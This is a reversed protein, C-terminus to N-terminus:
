ILGKNKASQKIRGIMHGPLSSVNYMAWQEINNDIIFKYLYESFAEHQKDKKLERVENNSAELKKAFIRAARTEDKTTQFDVLKLRAHNYNGRPLLEIRDRRTIRPLDDGTNGVFFMYHYHLFSFIKKINDPEVFNRDKFYVLVEGAEPDQDKKRSGVVLARNFEKISFELRWVPLQLDINGDKKWSRVIHPKRGKEIFEISKNYLYYSIDSTYDGFKLYEISNGPKMLQQLNVRSTTNNVKGQLKFKTKNRQKKLIEDQLWARIFKAPEKYQQNIFNNFDYSIDIRSWNHWVINLDRCLKDIFTNCERMYLISNDLKVIISGTPVKVKEKPEHQITAIPKDKYKLVDIKEFLATQGIREFTYKEPYILENGSILRSNFQLWDLNIM